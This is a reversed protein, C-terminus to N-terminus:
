PTIHRLVQTALKGDERVRRVIYPGKADIREWWSERAFYELGDALEEEDSPRWQLFAYSGTGLVTEPKTSGGSSKRGYYRPRPLPRRLSPGEDIDFTVLEEADFLFLEEEGESMGSGIAVERFGGERAPLLASGALPAGVLPPNEMGEYALPSHLALTFLELEPM